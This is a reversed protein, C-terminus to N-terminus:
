RRFTGIIRFPRKATTSPMGTAASNGYQRYGYGTNAVCDFVAMTPALLPCDSITQQERFVATKRFAACEETALKLIDAPQASRSSYCVNVYEIDDPKQGFTTLTRDFESARYVYPPQGSCAAVLGALVALLLASRTIKIM